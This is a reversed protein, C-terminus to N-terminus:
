SLRKCYRGACLAIVAALVMFTFLSLESRDGTPVAPERDNAVTMHVEVVEMSGDKTEFEVNYSAVPLMYGEPAKVETLTYKKAGLYKGDKDYVGFDILESEAHGREDTILTQITNGEEDRLVFEAGALPEGTHMDVKDIVLKGKVRDNFMEVQQIGDTERVEFEVSRALAYGDPAQEEELIYQGAPISSIIHATGDSIWTDIINGGYDKVTLRAGALDKGSIISKKSVSVRIPTNEAKRENDFFFERNEDSLCFEECLYKENIYGKPAETEMVRFRGLNQTTYILASSKITEDGSGTHIMCTELIYTGDRNDKLFGANLWRNEIVSWEQLVFVAGSLPRKTIRDAKALKVKGSIGTNGAGTELTNFEHDKGEETVVFQKEFDGLAYKSPAKTEKVKFKGLNVSTRYLRGKEFGEMESTDLERGEADHFIFDQGDSVYEQEEECYGLVGVKLWEDMTEIYEYVTFVADGTRVREKTVNDYKVTKVTGSIGANVAGKEITDFQIVKNKSDTVVDFEKTFVREGRLYDKPAKTEVVRYKGQNATTYYVGQATEETYVPNGKSDHLTLKMGKSTYYENAEDYVLRGAELWEGGIKEYITFEADGTKVKQKTIADYKVLELNASVGTDKVGDSFNTFDLVEGDRESIEFEKEYVNVQLSDLCLTGKEYNVPSVTEVLKYRGKNDSTYYLYGPLCKKDSVEDLLTGDAQHPRYIIGDTTYQRSDADYNLVGVKLWKNVAEIHEYVTIEAPSAVIEGTVADYKRTIVKNGNGRNEPATNGFDWFAVTTNDTEPAIDFEKRWEGVYYENSAKIEVLRFRGQNSVTRHLPYESNDVTRCIKGSKDHFSYVQTDSTQYVSYLSGTDSKKIIEKLEGVDYWKDAVKEQIKFKAGSLKAGTFSDYKHLSVGCYYPSEIIGTDYTNFSQVYGDVTTEMTFEKDGAKKWGKPPSVEVVKFRGQNVPTYYLCDAYVTNMVMGDLSHYSYGQSPMLSYKGNGDYVLEGMRLYSGIGSNYEYLDFKAEETIINGTGEEYKFLELYNRIEANKVSASVTDDKIDLTYVQTDQVTGEPASLERVYYIGEVAHIKFNGTKDTTYTGIKNTCASDSYVGYAAEPILMGTDTGYKYVDIIKAGPVLPLKPVEWTIFDQWGSLDSYENRNQITWYKIKTTSYKDSYSGGAAEKACQAYYDYFDVIKSKYDEWESDPYMQGFVVRALNHEYELNEPNFSGSAIRWTIIQHVAYNVPKGSYWVMSPNTKRILEARGSDLYEKTVHEEPRTLTEYAYCVGKLYDEVPYEEGGQFYPNKKLINIDSLVYHHTRDSVSAHGNFTVCMAEDGGLSIYWPVTVGAANNKPNFLAHDYGTGELNVDHKEAPKECETLYYRGDYDPASLSVMEYSDSREEYEAPEQEEGTEGAFISTNMNQLGTVMVLMFLLYAKTKRLIRKM